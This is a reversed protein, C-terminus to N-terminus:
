RNPRFPSFEYEKDGVQFVVKEEQNDKLVGEVARKCGFDYFTIQHTPQLEGKSVDASSRQQASALERVNLKQCREKAESEGQRIVVLYNGHFKIPMKIETMTDGRLPKFDAM